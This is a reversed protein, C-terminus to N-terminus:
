PRIVVVSGDSEIKVLTSPTGTAEKEQLNVVYDVQELINLTIEDFSQPTKKGSENASTSVIPKNFQTLIKQCFSHNPIRIAISGDQAILNPALNKAKPYIITLPKTAEVILKKALIPVTDVYNEIMTIDKMLCILAKSDSRNKLTFIKSVAKENTADCGLGWVTDTPYLITKGKQLFSCSQNIQHKFNVTLFETLHTRKEEFSGCNLMGYLSVM